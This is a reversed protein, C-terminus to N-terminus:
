QVRVEIVQFKSLENNFNIQCFGTHPIMAGFGNMMDAKIGYMFRNSLNPTDMKASTDDMFVQHYASAFHFDVKSPYKASNRIATRCEGKLQTVANRVEKERLQEPTLPEDSGCGVLLVSGVMISILSLKM